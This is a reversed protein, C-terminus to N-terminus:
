VNGFNHEWQCGGVGGHASRRGEDSSQYKTSPQKGGLSSYESQGRIGWTLVEGVTKWYNHSIKIKPLM